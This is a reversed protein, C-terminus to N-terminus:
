SNVRHNLARVDILLLNFIVRRSQLPVVPLLTRALARTPNEELAIEAISRCFRVGDPLRGLASTYGQFIRYIVAEGAITTLPMLARFARRAEGLAQGVDPEPLLLRATSSLFLIGPHEPYAELSRRCGGLLQRVGDVTSLLKVGSSDRLEIVKIWEDPNIARVIVLLVDTFPSKELYARLEGRIYADQERRTELAAAKRAVEVMSRLAARRKKEIEEYVFRLLYSVCKGLMTDGLETRVQNAVAEVVERTKYRRIYTQLNKLIQEDTRRVATVVFVGKNYDLTYDQVLGLIALRYLAKDRKGQTKDDNSDDSAFPVTVDVPSDVPANALATVIYKTYVEKVEEREAKQGRFSNQHLWLLRHADGGDRHQVIEALTLENADPALARDAEDPLDDSFILWCSARNRDRGARGAEQYFAELSPPINYHITYRINPKDIGMGFAKTAVLLSFENAKFKAQTAVKHDKEAQGTFYEVPKNLKGAVTSTIETAGYKGKAHPTFVIGARTEDGDASYMVDWRPVLFDKPLKDFLLAFLAHQKQDSPTGIVRYELETRDFSDPYVQAQEDEVGIERQVDSLVAYSATGTLAIIIPPLGQYRCYKQISSALRLYSTRFDHGWESVCHAEDIVAYPVPYAMSFESLKNRFEKSQLREPSLFLLKLKGDAMKQASLNREHANQLSSISSHWDVALSERLNDVQDVMLSILPDVVLTMGPQLLASLQYCLSKGAGAPLLGIVPQLALSRKLIPYQGPRFSVKRFVNTLFFALTEESGDHIPYAIPQLPSIRRVDSVYGNRWLVSVDILVDAGFRDCEQVAEIKVTRSQVKYRGLTTISVAPDITSFEPTVCCLVDVAPLECDLKRMACLKSLYMLFDVIALLACPVDREIVVLRWRKQALSLVSSELALLLTRQIRAVAFPTLAVRLALRGLDDVWLPHVRSLNALRVFENDPIVQRLRELTDREYLRGTPIRSVRWGDSRLAEDRHQDGVRHSSEQHQVGDVEVIAKLGPMKAAFDVMQDWFDVKRDPLLESFPRQPEFFQCLEPGIAQPLVRRFFDREEPSGFFRGDLDDASVRPDVVVHSRVLAEFWMDPPTKLDKPPVFRITGGNRTEAVLGQALCDSLLTNEVFLSPFTPLGRCLLGTYVALIQEEETKRPSQSIFQGRSQSIHFSSLTYAIEQLNFGARASLQQRLGWLYQLYFGGNYIDQRPMATM